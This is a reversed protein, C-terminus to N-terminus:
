GAARCARDSSSRGAGHAGKGLEASEHKYNRIRTDDHVPYKRCGRRSIGYYQSPAPRFRERKWRNRGFPCITCGGGITLTAPFQAPSPLGAFGCGYVAQKVYRRRGAPLNKATKLPIASATQPCHRLNFGIGFPNSSDARPQSSRAVWAALRFFRLGQFPKIERMLRQYAVREPNFGMKDFGLTPGRQTPGVSPQIIWDRRSQPIFSQVFPFARNQCEVSFLSSGGGAPEPLTGTANKGPLPLTRGTVRRTAPGPRPCPEPRPQSGNEAVTM